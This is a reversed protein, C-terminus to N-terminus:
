SCLWNGEYFSNDDHYLIECDSGHYASHWGIRHLIDCPWEYKKCKEVYYKAEELYANREDEHLKNWSDTQPLMGAKKDRQFSLLAFRAKNIM